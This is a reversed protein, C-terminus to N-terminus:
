YEPKGSNPPSYELSTPDEEVFIALVIYVVLGMGGMIGLIFAIRILIPDINFHKGLGGCVGAVWRDDVSRYLKPQTNIQRPPYGRKTDAKNSGRIETGCNNCFMDEPNIPKGCNDCYKAM